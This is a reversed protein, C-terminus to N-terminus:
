IRGTETAWLATTASGTTADWMAATIALMVQDGTTITRASTGEQIRAITLTDGSRATCLVIEATAATPAAATPWVVLPFPGSISPSPFLAGTGTDVVMSTGTTAPSPPNSVTTLALNTLM